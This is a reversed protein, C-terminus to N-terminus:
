VRHNERRSSCGRSATAGLEPPAWKFDRWEERWVAAGAEAALAVNVMERATVYHYKFSRDEGARRALAEHLGIMPAGLLVDANETVAGHSHLKVFYWDPRGDVRVAARLWDDLRGADPPQSRQL